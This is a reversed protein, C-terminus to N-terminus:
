IHIYIYMNSNLFRYNRASSVVGGLGYYQDGPAAPCHHRALGHFKMVVGRPWTVMPM